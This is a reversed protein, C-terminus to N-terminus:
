SVADGPFQCSVRAVVNELELDEEFVPVYRGAQKILYFIGLLEGKKSCVFHLEKLPGNIRNM